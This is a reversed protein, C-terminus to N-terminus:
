KKDGGFLNGLLNMGLGAVDDAVSGDGDRDLLMTLMSVQPNSKQVQEREGGLISALGGADLNQERKQKGLYGLVVPALMSILKSTTQPDLGSVESLGHQAVQQKAGPLVHKLIAEGPSTQGQGLFGSLNDLISGDHDRDLAGALSSAGNDQQANKALAFILMPMAASIASQTQQPQAGIAQSLASIENSGLQGMLSELIGSM